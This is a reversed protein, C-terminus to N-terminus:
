LETHDYDDPDYGAGGGGGSQYYDKLIPQVIDDFEQQKEKYDDLEANPNDDMWDIIDNIIEFLIDNDQETIKNNDEDELQNKLNYISSELKNKTQVTDFLLKDDDQFEKASKLM